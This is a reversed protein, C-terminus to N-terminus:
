HEFGRSPVAVTQCRSQGRGQGQWGTLHSCWRDFPQGDDENLIAPEERTGRRSLSVELERYGIVRIVPGRSARQMLVCDISETRAGAFWGRDLLLAGAKNTACEVANTVKQVTALDFQSYKSFLTTPTLLFHKPLVGFAVVYGAMATPIVSVIAARFARVDRIMQDATLVLVPASPTTRETALCGGLVAPGSGRFCPEFIVDASIHLDALQREVVLRHTKNVVVVPRAFWESDQVCLVTDQFTSREGVTRAFPAPVSPASTPWLEKGEADCRIFPRILHQV